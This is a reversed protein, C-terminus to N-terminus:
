QPAFKIASGRSLLERFLWLVVGASSPILNLESSRGCSKVMRNSRYRVVYNNKRKSASWMTEISMQPASHYLIWPLMRLVSKPRQMSANAGILQSAEKKNEEARKCRLLLSCIMKESVSKIANKVMTVDPTCPSLIDPSYSFATKAYCFPSFFAFVASFLYNLKKPHYLGCTWAANADGVCTVDSWFRLNLRVESKRENERLDERFRVNECYLWHAQGERSLSNFLGMKRVQGCTQGSASIKPRNQGFIM